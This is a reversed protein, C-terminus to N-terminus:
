AVDCTEMDAAANGTLMDAFDTDPEPPMAVRARRDEALFRQAADYAARQGVGNRDNDALIIVDTINYSLVLAKLGGASLAAWSPWGTAVTGSLATEIGEALLLPEGMRPTGLRVSGGGLPGLGAQAPESGAKGAGDARLYTRHIGVVGCNCHEVLGIMAPLREGSPHPCRPAWRLSAPWLDLVIGRGALYRAVPSTRADDTAGWIRRACAIRRADDDRNDRRPPAAIGRRHDARESLLGRGRLDALVDIRGCGAWCTILLRGGEGDRLTLSRGGHLPCRCRWSRGERRADGLAAAIDAATM